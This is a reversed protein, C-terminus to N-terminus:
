GDVRRLKVEHLGPAWWPNHDWDGPTGQIEFWGHGPLEIHDRATIRLTSPPYVTADSIVREVHGNASEESGGLHWAFVLEDSADEHAAPWDTVTNGGRDVVMSDAYRAVRVPLTAAFEGAM